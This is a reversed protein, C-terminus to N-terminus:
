RGFVQALLSLANAVHGLSFPNKLSPPPVSPFSGLVVREFASGGTSYSAGSHNMTVAGDVYKGDTLHIQLENNVKRSIWGRRFVLGSKYDLNNLYNGVPLFWDVVFSWPVLEWAVSLPNQIGTQSAMAAFSSDVAYEIFGNVHANANQKWSAPLGYRTEHTAYDNNLSVSAGARVSVYPPQSAYRKSLAQTAGYIDSLLPRWGYQLELWQNPVAGAGRLSREKRLSSAGTLGRIAGGVNGRRLSQVAQAIRRASSSVLNATQRTEALAVGANFSQGKIQTILRNLVKNHMDDLAILVNSQLIAPIPEALLVALTGNGAISGDHSRGSWTSPTYSAHWGSRYYPNDRINHPFGPTWTSIRDSGGSDYGPSADYVSVVTGPNPPLLTYWESHVHCTSSTLKPYGPDSM